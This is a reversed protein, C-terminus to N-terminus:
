QGPRPPRVINVARVTVPTVVELLCALYLGKPLVAARLAPRVPGPEGASLRVACKGCTGKGGCTALINVGAVRAADLVTTGPEVEVTVGPPDFTVSVM